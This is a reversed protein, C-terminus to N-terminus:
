ARDVPLVAGLFSPGKSYGLFVIASFGVVYM